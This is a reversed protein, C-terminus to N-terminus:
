IKVLYVEGDIPIPFIPQEPTVNRTKYECFKYQLGLIDMLNVFDEKDLENIIFTIKTHGAKKYREIRTRLTKEWEGNLFKRNKGRLDIQPIQTM